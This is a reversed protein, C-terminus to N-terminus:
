EVPLGPTIALGSKTWQWAPTDPRQVLTCGPRGGGPRVYLRSIGRPIRRTTACEWHRSSLRVCKIKLPEHAFRRLVADVRQAFLRRSLGLM